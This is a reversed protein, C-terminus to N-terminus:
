KFFVSINKLWLWKLHKLYSNYIFIVENFLADKGRNLLLVVPQSLGGRAFARQVVSICGCKLDVVDVVAGVGGLNVVNTVYM